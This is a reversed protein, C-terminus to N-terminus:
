REPARINAVVTGRNGRTIRMDPSLYLIDFYGPMPRKTSYSFVPNEQPEGEDFDGGDNDNCSTNPDFTEDEKLTELTAARYLWARWEGIASASNGVGFAKCWDRVDRRYRPWFRGGTFWVLMRRPNDPDPYMYGRNEMLGEIPRKCYRDDEITFSVLFSYVRLKSPDDQVLTAIRGEPLPVKEEPCYIPNKVNQMSVLMDSPKLVGFSMRRMSYQRDGTSNTGLCGPFTPTSLQLWVGELADLLDEEDLDTEKKNLSSLEEYALQVKHNDMDGEALTLQALFREKAEVVERSDSGSRRWPTRSRGRENLLLPNKNNRRRKRALFFALAAPILVAVATVAAAASIHIQLNAMSPLASPHMQVQVMAIPGNSEIEQMEQKAEYTCSIYTSITRVGATDLDMKPMECM